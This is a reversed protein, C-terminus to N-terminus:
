LTVNLAYSKKWTVWRSESLWVTPYGIKPIIIIQKGIYINKEILIDDISNNADGKTYYAYSNNTKIKKIIRHVIIYNDKKFAIVDGEKLSEYNYKKDILVVDGKKIKPTMSGTAIAFAHYKFYGSYFYVLIIVIITPLISSKLKRKYNTSDIFKDEKKTIFKLMNFAFIVPVILQIISVIYESPNPVISILYPYLGFLLDFIIIPKYGTKKSIYSYSINRSIIPLITLAILKLTSNKSTYAIIYVMDLIIFVNVVMITCLTNNDAKNLMNYRLIERLITYIILPIIFIKLGYLNIYNTNKALGVLLGLLYYLLFFSIIFISIEFLINKIYRHKDKEIVFIKNFFILLIFLFLNMKYSSFFNLIFLDLLFIIILVLSLILIKKYGKKM